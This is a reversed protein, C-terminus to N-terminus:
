HAHYHRNKPYDDGTLFTDFYFLSPFKPVGYTAHKEAEAKCDTQAHHDSLYNNVLDANDICSSWIAACAIEQPSRQPQSAVIRWGVIVVIILLILCGWNV